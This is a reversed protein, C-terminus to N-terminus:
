SMLLQYVGSLTVLGGSVPMVLKNAFSRSEAGAILLNAVTYGVFILSASAFLFGAFYSAVDASYPMEVGHAAGHFLAFSATMPLTIGLPLRKGAVLLIGLLIVSIAIGMEVLPLAFNSFALAAGFAMMALFVSPIMSGSHKIGESKLMFAWIGIAAMAIVHDAGMLPHGFGALFGSVDHGTHAFTTLPASGILITALKLGNRKM